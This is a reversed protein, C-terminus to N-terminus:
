EKQLKASEHSWFDVVLVRDTYHLCCSHCQGVWKLLCYCRTWCTDLSANHSSNSLALHFGLVFWRRWLTHKDLHGGTRRCTPRQLIDRSRWSAILRKWFPFHRIYARTIRVLRFRDEFKRRANQAFLKQSSASNCSLDRQSKVDPSLFQPPTAWRWIGAFQLFVCVRWYVRAYHQASTAAM